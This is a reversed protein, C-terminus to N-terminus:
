RVLNSDTKYIQIKSGHLFISRSKESSSLKVPRKTIFRSGNSELYVKFKTGWLPNNQIKSSLNIKNNLFKIFIKLHM